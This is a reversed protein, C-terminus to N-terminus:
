AVVGAFGVVSSCREVQECNPMEIIRGVIGNDVGSSGIHIYQVAHHDRHLLCDEDGDWM